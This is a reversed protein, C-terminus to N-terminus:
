GDYVFGRRPWTVRDPEALELKLGSHDIFTESTPDAMCMTSRNQDERVAVEGYRVPRGGFTRLIGSVDANGDGGQLLPAGFAKAVEVPSLSVPRGLYWWGHFLTIICCGGFLIVAVAPALWRYHSVYITEVITETGNVLQSFSANSKSIAARFALERIGSLIDPTPDAWTMNATGIDDFSSNLYNIAMPGEPEMAYIGDFYLSVNSGYLTQAALQFGGISSPWIGLGATQFPPHEVPYRVTAIQLNCNGRTLSGVAGPSAKYVTQAGISGSDMEGNFTFGAYGVWYEHGPRATLQYPVSDSTCSIDFGPGVLTGRCTAGCGSYNLPIASRSTFLQVVEAFNPTLMDINGSRTMYVGSFDRPFPDPSMWASFTVPKTTVRSVVTSARQLLPGDIVVLATAICALAIKNFSRGSTASAFASSGHAWYWHCDRINGGQLMKVWWAITCGESFALSLLVNAVATLVALMVAPSM